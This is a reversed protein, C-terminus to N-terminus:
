EGIKMTNLTVEVAARTHSCKRGLDRALRDIVDQRATKCLDMLAGSGPKLPTLDDTGVITPAQYGPFGPVYSGADAIQNIKSRAGEFLNQCEGPTPCTVCSVNEGTM